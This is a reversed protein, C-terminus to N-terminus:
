VIQKRAYLNELNELCAMLSDQSMKELKDPTKGVLSKFLQWSYLFNKMFDPSNRISSKNHNEDQDQIYQFSNYIDAFYHFPTGMGRTFMLHHSYLHEAANIFDERFLNGGGFQQLTSRHGVSFAAFSNNYIDVQNKSYQVVHAKNPTGDPNVSGGAVGGHTGYSLQFHILGSDCATEIYREWVKNDVIKVDDEVVFFWEYPKGESNVANYMERLLMNKAVGVVIPSRKPFIVQTNDPYSDYRDGSNVVIIKDVAEKDISDFCTQFMEQRNCTVIGVITNEKFRNM